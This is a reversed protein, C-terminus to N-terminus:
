GGGVMRLLVVHPEDFEGSGVGVAVDEGVWSELGLRVGRPWTARFVLKGDSDFVDAERPEEDATTREVWLRGTVDFKLGALPPKTAPTSFPIEAGGSRGASLTSDSVRRERDSLPVPDGHIDLAHLLTGDMSYREVVPVSTLIRAWNGGPGYAVHFRPGYPQYFYYVSLMGGEMSRVQHLGISDNPPEPVMTSRLLVPVGTGSGADVLGHGRQFGAGEVLIRGAVVLRASDDFVISEWLGRAGAMEAPFLVTREYDASTDDARYVNARSNGVDRVWLKGDPAFAICCPSRFEGPGEGERGFSYLFEGANSFVRIEHNGADAVFIRGAPDLAVGGVRGFVDAGEGDLSGLRLVEELHVLPVGDATEGSGATGCAATVALTLAAVSGALSHVSFTM